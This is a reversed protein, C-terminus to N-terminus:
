DDRSSSSQQRYSNLLLNSSAATADSPAEGSIHARVNTRVRQMDRVLAANDAEVAIGRDLQDLALQFQGDAINLLATKFAIMGEANAADDLLSWSQRAPELENKTYHILGIQFHATTLTSDLGVARAMEEIARDFMGIEAHEAGLLYHAKANKADREIVIKLKGIADDHRGERSDLIALHILEEADLKDSPNVTM